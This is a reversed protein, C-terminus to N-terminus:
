QGSRLAEKAYAGFAPNIREFGVDRMIGKLIEKGREKSMSGNLVGEIESVLERFWEIGEHGSSVLKIIDKMDKADHKGKGRSTWTVYKMVMLTARNTVSFDTDGINVTEAGSVIDMIPIGNIDNRPKLGNVPSVYGPYYMDIKVAKDKTPLTDSHYIISPRLTARMNGDVSFYVGDRGPAFSLQELQHPTPRAALVLDIDHSPRTEGGTLMNVARGGIFVPRHGFAMCFYDSVNAVDRVPIDFALQHREKRAVIRAM